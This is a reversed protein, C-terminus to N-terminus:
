DQKVPKWQPRDQKDTGMYEVVIPDDIKLVRDIKGREAGKVNGFFVAARGGKNLSIFAVTKGDNYGTVKGEFQDGENYTRRNSNGNRHGSANNGKKHTNQGRDNNQGHGDNDDSYSISYPHLPNAKTSSIDPLLVPNEGKRVGKAESFWKHSAKDNIGAGAPINVTDIYPYCVDMGRLLEYDSIIQIQTKTYDNLLSTNDPVSVSASNQVSYNYDEGFERCMQESICIKVSGLGIPKGHGMKYCYRSEKSNEGLSLTWKLTELQDMSIEDFYVDFEFTGKKLIEVTSNRETKEETTYIAPDEAAGPNHWYFKRGNINAGNSDYDIGNLAYFPLFGTRPTGLEKLTVTVPAEGTKDILKADTFRVHSGYGSGKVTGFLQCASCLSAERNKKGAQCAVLGLGILDNVTNKYVKRGIAAMSLSIDKVTQNDSEYTKKCWVPIVGNKKADFYSAYGTHKRNEPDYQKNITKKGYMEISFELGNIAKNLVKSDVSIAAGKQFVSENHKRSGFPEGIYLVYDNGAGAVSLSNVKNNSKEVNVRDGFSFTRNDFTLKRKGGEYIIRFTGGNTDVSLREADYLTWGDNEKILIAPGYVDDTAVRNSLFADEPLTSFCSNTLTEYMSRVCGRISSGPISLVDNGDISTRIFKYHQHGKDDRYISEEDTDLIALPTKVYLKCHLKGTVKEEKESIEGKQVEPVPRVFNYPNIFSKNESVTYKFRPKAM